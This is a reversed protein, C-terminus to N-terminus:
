KKGNKKKFKRYVFYGAVLLVIILLYVWNNNSSILGFKKLESSSYLPLELDFSQQYAKHNADFYKLQLPISVKEQNDLVYIDVEESQTDDSDIDGLYYYDTTSILKYDDSPLLKLEVFKLDTSGSNAVELTLKGVQNKQQVTSKKIYANLKPLDGIMVAVIDTYNYSKGREDNYTITLPIKYLGSSASPNAIVKFSLSNQYKSELQAIRRESSSQYPALPLTSSSFDLKFKIDKLLSDALNKIQINIEAFEGPSIQKPQISIDTVDLVADHTQINITFEDSTYVQAGDGMQLSLGISNEREVAKEDVKLNFEVVAAEAGTSDARLKGLNKEAIDGYLQFPYKPLLKVILDQTTEKGENEIKFKVKFVQGPEIPDPDQSLLTAKLIPSNTNVSAQALSILFLLLVVSTFIKKM